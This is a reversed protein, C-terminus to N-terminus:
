GFISACRSPRLAISRRRVVSKPTEHVEGPAGVVVLQIPLDRGLRGVVLSRLMRTLHGEGDKPEWGIRKMVPGFLKRVFALFNGHFDTHQFLISLSGLNGSLNEWVTYNTENEFADTLKLVDVCSAIGARALAFLDGQLQLRDRPPLSQDRVAPLLKELMDPPYLTRYFGVGGVNM